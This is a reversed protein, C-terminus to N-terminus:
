GSLAPIAELMELPRRERAPRPLAVVLPVAELVLPSEQLANAVLIPDERFAGTLRFIGDRLDRDDMPGPFFGRLSGWREEVSSRPEFRLSIEDTLLLRGEHEGAFRYVRFVKYVKRLQTMLLSRLDPRVKLLFYDNGIVKCHRVAQGYCTGALFQTGPGGHLDIFIEDSVVDLEHSKGGLLLRKAWRPPESM